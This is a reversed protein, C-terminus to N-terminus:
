DGGCSQFLRAIQTRCQLILSSKGVFGDAGADLAAVKMDPGDESSMMLVKADGGMDKIHLAATLGNMHPMNVDMVILDPDYVRAASIAEVGNTATAIVEINGDLELLETVTRLIEPSDDVVIARLLRASRYGSIALCSETAM